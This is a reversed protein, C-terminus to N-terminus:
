ENYLWDVGLRTVNTVSLGTGQPRNGACYGLLVHDDVFDMATYCYWGDPDDELTKISEWTRGEDKSIAANLPTRLRAIDPDDALNNNWVALLDGTKPIREITAPSVPSVLTSKELDSWTEGQDQSYALMQVGANSRIFMMITGDKLEVVGPEQLVISDPNALEPSSKWTQGNDDSYYSFIKGMGGWEEGPAAHQAVALLLRGNELQIVRDNNLVFYGERDTICPVAESWTKAEDKSIRMMPICDDTNNKRLYFMAIDGNQLRLLSVSMVNMGGENPLILEDEETWTQGQDESYRGALHATGHDSSSEGYYHSYVFLIRGDNLQIFDGESNRPNNEGPNLILTRDIVSAETNEETVTEGSSCSVAILLALSLLPIIIRFTPKALELNKM